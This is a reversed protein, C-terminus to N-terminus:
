FWFGLSHLIKKSMNSIDDSELHIFVAPHPQHMHYLNQIQINLPFPLMTRSHIQSSRDRGIM